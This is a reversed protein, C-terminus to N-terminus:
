KEKKFERGNHIIKETKYWVEWEEGCNECTYTGVMQDLEEETCFGGCFPCLEGNSSEWNDIDPTSNYKIFEEFSWEKDETIVKQLPVNVEITPNDNDGEFTSIGFGTIGELKGEFDQLMQCFIMRALYQSDNWRETKALVKQVTKKLLAGGWHTYLYLGIKNENDMQDVFYVSARDGM